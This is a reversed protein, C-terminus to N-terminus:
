YEDAEMSITRTLRYKMTWPTKERERDGATNVRRLAPTIAAAGVGGVHLM